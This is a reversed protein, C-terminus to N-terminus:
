SIYGTLYLYGKGRNLTVRSLGFDTLKIHGQNSILMNDPKLDRFVHICNCDAFFIVSAVQASVFLGFGAIVRITLLLTEAVVSSEVHLSVGSCDFLDLVLYQVFMELRTVDGHM